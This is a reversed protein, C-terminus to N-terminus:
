KVCRSMYGQETLLKCFREYTKVSKAQGSEVKAVFELMADALADRQQMIPVGTNRTVQVCRDDWLSVMDYDKENTVHLVQGFTKLCWAQIDSMQKQYGTRWKDARATVIRVDQGADLWGQVRDVMAPIPDGIEPYSDTVLTGDFDVGIWGQKPM